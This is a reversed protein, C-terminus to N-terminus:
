IKIKGLIEAVYRPSQPCGTNLWRRIVAFSGSHLFVQMYEREENQTSICISKSLKEHISPIDYIAKIMKEESINAMLRTIKEHNASMYVLIAELRTIEDMEVNLRQLTQSTVDSLVENLVDQPEGYYKYFTTRNITAESCLEYVTIKNISKKELLRILAEKLLIKSIRSRQNEM